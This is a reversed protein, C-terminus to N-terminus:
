RTPASSPCSRQDLGHRRRLGQELVDDSGEARVGLAVFIPLLDVPLYPWPAAEVKQLINSRSPSV